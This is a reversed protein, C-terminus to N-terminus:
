PRERALRPEYNVIVQRIQEPLGKMAAWRHHPKFYRSPWFEFDIKPRLLGELRGDIWPSRTSCRRSITCVERRLVSETIVQRAPLRRGALTREGSETRMDVKKADKAAHSRSVRADAPSSLRTKRTADAMACRFSAAFVTFLFPRRLPPSPIRNPGATTKQPKYQVTGFLMDRKGTRKLEKDRSKTQM